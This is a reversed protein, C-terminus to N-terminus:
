YAHAKGDWTEFCGTTEHTLAAFREVLGTVAEDVTIDAAGGGM